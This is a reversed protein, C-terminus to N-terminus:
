MRVSGHFRCCLAALSRKMFRGYAYVCTVHDFMVRVEMYLDFIFLFKDDGMGLKASSPTSFIVLMQTQLKCVTDVSKVSMLMLM